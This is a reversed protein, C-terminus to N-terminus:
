ISDDKIQERREEVEIEDEEDFCIDEERTLEDEAYFLLEHAECCFEKECPDGCYACEHALSFRKGHKVKNDYLIDM